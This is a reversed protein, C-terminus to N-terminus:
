LLNRKLYLNDVKEVLELQTPTFLARVKSLNKNKDDEKQKKDELPQMKRRNASYEINNQRLFDLIYKAPIAFNLNQGFRHTLTSIGIVVGDKNMVPGGSNGSSIPATMQIWNDNGDKGRLQSVIGDSFTGTLGESNGIVYVNSGINPLATDIELGTNENAGLQKIIAIDRSSSVFLRECAIVENTNVIPRLTIETPSAGDVVHLNTIIYGNTLLFGTGISLSNNSKNVVVYCNKSANKYLEEPSLQAKTTFVTLYILLSLLFKTSM